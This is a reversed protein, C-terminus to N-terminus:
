GAAHLSSLAATSADDPWPGIARANIFGQATGRVEVILDVWEGRTLNPVDDSDLFRPGLSLENEIFDNLRITAYPIAYRKGSNKAVGERVGVDTVYGPLRLIM